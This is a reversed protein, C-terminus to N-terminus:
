PFRATAIPWIMKWLDAMFAPSNKFINKFTESNESSQMFILPKKKVAAYFPLPNMHQRIGPNKPM